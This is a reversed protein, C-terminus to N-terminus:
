LPMNWFTSPSLTRTANTSTSSQAFSLSCPGNWRGGFASYSPSDGPGWFVRTRGSQTTLNENSRHPATDSSVMQLYKPRCVGKTIFDLEEHIQQNIWILAKKDWIQLAVKSTFFWYQSSDTPHHSAKQMLLRFENLHMLRKLNKGLM